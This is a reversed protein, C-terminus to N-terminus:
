PGDELELSGLGTQVLITGTSNELEILYDGPQACSELQLFGGNELLFLFVSAEQELFCIINPPTFLAPGQIQPIVKFGSM